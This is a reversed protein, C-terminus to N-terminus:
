ENRRHIPALQTSFTGGLSLGQLFTRATTFSRVTYAEDKIMVAYMDPRLALFALM